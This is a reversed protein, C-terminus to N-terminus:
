VYEGYTGDPIFVLNDLQTQTLCERENELVVVCYGYLSDDRLFLTKYPTTQIKSGRCGVITDIIDQAEQITDGKFYKIM